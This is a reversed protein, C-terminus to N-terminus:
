YESNLCQVDMVELGERFHVDNIASIAKMNIAVYGDESLIFHACVRRSIM